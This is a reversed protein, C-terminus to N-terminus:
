ACPLTVKVVASHDLKLKDRCQTIQDLVGMLVPRMDASGASWKSVTGVIFPESASECALPAVSRATKADDPPPIWGVDTTAHEVLHWAGEVDDLSEVTCNCTRLARPLVLRHDLLKSEALTANQLQEVAPCGKTTRQIENTIAATDIQLENAFVKRAIAQARETHAPWPYVDHKRPLHVVRRLEFSVAWANGAKALWAASEAVAEDKTAVAYLRVPEHTKRATCAEANAVAELVATNTGSLPLVVGAAFDASGEDNAPLEKAQDMVVALIANVQTLEAEQARLRAEIADARALCVEHSTEKKGGCAALLVLALAARM